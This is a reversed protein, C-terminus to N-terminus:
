INMTMIIKSYNKNNQIYYKRKVKKWQDKQQVITQNYQSTLSARAMEELGATLEATVGLITM